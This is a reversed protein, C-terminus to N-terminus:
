VFYSHAGGLVDDFTDLQDRSFRAKHSEEWKDQHTRRFEKFTHTVQVNNGYPADDDCGRNTRKPHLLVSVHSNSALFFFHGAVPTFRDHNVRQKRGSTPVDVVVAFEHHRTLCLCMEVRVLKMSPVINRDQVVSKSAQPVTFNSNIEALRSICLM